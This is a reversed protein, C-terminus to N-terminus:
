GPSRESKKGSDEDRGPRLADGGEEPIVSFCLARRTVAGRDPRLRFCAMSVTSPIAHRTRRGRLPDDRRRRMAPEPHVEEPGPRTRSPTSATGAPATSPVRVACSLSTSATGAPVARTRRPHGCLGQPLFLLGEILPSVDLCWSARQLLFINSVQQGSFACVRDRRPDRVMSIGHLTRLDSVYWRATDLSHKKCLFLPTNTRSSPRSGQAARAHARSSAPM